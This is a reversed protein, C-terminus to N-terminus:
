FFTKLGTGAVEDKIGKEALTQISGELQEIPIKATSAAVGAKTIAVTQSDIEASGFKSGAALVNVYKAAEDAGAGYQNMALTLGNVAPQVEMKAAKAMRLAEITVKNLAEKNGLLEPKASGVLTYAELIDKASATIRLKSSDMTTSLKVAQKKLWDINKDDLGTLAKLNAASSEEDLADQRFKGITYGVGAIAAIVTSAISTFKSFGSGLKSFTGSFEKVKSSNTDLERGVGKLDAKHKDLITNLQGIQKMKSVYEQSGITAKNMEATLKRIENKIANASNDIEKDDIYLKVTRQVTKNTAM